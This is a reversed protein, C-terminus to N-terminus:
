FLGGQNQDGEGFGAALADIEAQLREAEGMEEAPQGSGQLFAEITEKVAVLQQEDNGAKVLLTKVTSKETDTLRDAVTTLHKIVEVRAPSPVFKPPPSGASNGVQPGAGAQAVKVGSGPGEAWKALERGVAISLARGPTLISRFQQPLKIMQREAKEEPNWEPVGNAGPPLLCNLTMEFVFEEGAIPQWGRAEPSKGPVLKMKEKARFCFIFNVPQQLISNILQRRESKPKQWALMTMKNRDGGLRNLEAEHMELVGGQGEHEHSMSDVVITKAGKRICHEIASLYDLPGFPAGFPIHRFSFRRGDDSFTQIDAYHLARKAETDIYYIEGGVVEQIGHALELASGTKGGGSPGM